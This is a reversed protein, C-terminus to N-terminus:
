RGCLDLTDPLFFEDGKELRISFGAQMSGLRQFDRRVLEIQLACHEIDGIKDAVKNFKTSGDKQTAMLFCAGMDTPAEVARSCGGLAVLIATAALIARKM